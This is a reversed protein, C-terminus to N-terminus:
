APIFHFSELLDLLVQENFFSEHASYLFVYTVDDYLVSRGTLIRHGHDDYTMLFEYGPCNLLLCKEQHAMVGKKLAQPYHFIRQIVSSYLWQPFTNREFIQEDVKDGKIKCIILEGRQMPCSYVKLLGEHPLSFHMSFPKKPLLTKFHGEPDVFPIWSENGSSKSESSESANM